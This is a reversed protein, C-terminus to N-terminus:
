ESCAAAPVSADAFPLLSSKAAELTTFFVSGGVGIWLVRAGAGRFLAGAGDEAVIKRACDLIGAYRGSAGQTMLRTKIVDLPTTVAGTAAGAAAGVASVELSNLERGGAAKRWALKLQEYMVFEIADFPLDRALFSGYGAFIGRAGERALIHRVAGAATRFEGVQMRQKVVETPVRVLSAVLGAGSAAGLHAVAANEGWQACLRSKLPEYVGFFLASAPFVGLLNGGVGTYLGRLSVRGGRRAAQLRTKITDLPYLAGEVACGAVGGAVCNAAFARWARAGGEAASAAGPPACAAHAPPPSVSM